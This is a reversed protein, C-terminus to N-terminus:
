CADQTGQSHSESRVGDNPSDRHWSHTELGAARGPFQIQWLGEIWLNSAGVQSGLRHPAWSVAEEGWERGMAPKAPARSCPGTGWSPHCISVLEGHPPVGLHYGIDLGRGSNGSFKWITSSLLLSKSRVCSTILREGGRSAKPLHAKPAQTPPLLPSVPVEKPFQLRILHRPQLGVEMIGATQLELKLSNQSELM